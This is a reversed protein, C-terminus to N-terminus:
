FDFNFSKSIVNPNMLGNNETGSLLIDEINVEPNEIVTTLVMMFRECLLQISEAFFLDTNYVLGLTLQGDNEFFRFSLDLKSIKNETKFLQLTIGNLVKVEAEMAMNQYEIGVDFLPSRSRDRELQLMGVLEDFPYFQHEFAGLITNKVDELLENFTGNGNFVTRLALTNVYFGIQNELLYHDRGSIPTGIIIDEQGTYRYLLTKVMATLAMFPSIGKKDALERIGTFIQDPITHLHVNGNYTKVIPREFDTELSLVPLTGRFQDKWYNEGIEVRQESLQNKHWYVYDKYQVSLPQLSIAENKSYARYLLTVENIIVGMSWADSIIHHMSFLFLYKAAELKIIKVRLLLGEELDFPMEAAALMQAEQEVDLSLSIDSQEVKFGTTGPELIRQRPQGEHLVFTTRLIEHREILTLFSKEFAVIDLDGDLKYATPINYTLDNKDAQNVLWLRKQAHSLEYYEQKEVPTIDQFNKELSDEIIPAM